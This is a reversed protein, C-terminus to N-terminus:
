QCKWKQAIRIGKRFLSIDSWAMNGAYWPRWTNSQRWKQKQNHKGWRSGFRPCRPCLAISWLASWVCLCTYETSDAGWRSIGRSQKPYKARPFKSATGIRKCRQSHTHTAQEAWKSSRRRWYSATPVFDALAFHAYPHLHLCTLAHRNTYIHINIHTCPTCTYVNIHMYIYKCLHIYIHIYIHIYM